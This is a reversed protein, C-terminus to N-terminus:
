EKEGPNGTSDQKADAETDKKDGFFDSMLNMGLQTVFVALAVAGLSLLFSKLM